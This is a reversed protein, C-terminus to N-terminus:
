RKWRLRFATGGENSVTLDARIQRVLTRVVQLGVSRANKWSFDTPLGVGNDVVALEVFGEGATFSVRILGQSRSRFAHKLCNSVLENLILGCPIARHLSLRVPEVDLELEVAKQDVQYTNLLGRALVEVYEGFNLDSFTEAQYLQEHILSMALVRSHADHLPTVYPGGGLADMQMSLLSCIVQLNNKVRHHLEKLLTTKDGLLQHRVLAHRLTRNLLDSTCTSKVLYDQAGLQVIQLALAENDAGSLVIIPLHPENARLQRFTEIGDSDGLGLDMLILDIGGQGLRALGAALSDAWTLAAATQHSRGSLWRSILTAYERSDEILLVSLPSPAPTM